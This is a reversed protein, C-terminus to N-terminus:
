SVIYVDAACDVYYIECVDYKNLMELVEHRHAERQDIQYQKLCDRNYELTQSHYEIKSEKTSDTLELSEDSLDIYKIMDINDKTVQILVHREYDDVFVKRNNDIHTLLINKTM